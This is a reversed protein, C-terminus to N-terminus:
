TYALPLTNALLAPLLTVRESRHPPVKHASIAVPLEHVSTTLSYQTSATRRTVFSRTGVNVESPVM